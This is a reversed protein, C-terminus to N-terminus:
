DHATTRSEGRGVYVVPDLDLANSSDAPGALLEQGFWGAPDKSQQSPGVHDMM